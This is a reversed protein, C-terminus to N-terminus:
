HFLEGSNRGALASYESSFTHCCIASGSFCIALTPLQVAILSMIVFCCDNNHMYCIIILNKGSTKSPYSGKPNFIQIKFQVGNSHMTTTMLFTTLSCVHLRGQCGLLQSCACLHAEKLFLSGLSMLLEDQFNFCPFGYCPPKSIKRYNLNWNLLYILCECSLTENYKYVGKSLEEIISRQM